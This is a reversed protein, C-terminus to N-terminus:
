VLADEDCFVCPWACDLLEPTNDALEVLTPKPLTVSPLLM